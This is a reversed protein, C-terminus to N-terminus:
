SNEEQFLGEAPWNNVAAFGFDTEPALEVIASRVCQTVRVAVETPGSNHVLQYYARKLERVARESM